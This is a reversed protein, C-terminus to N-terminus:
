ITKGNTTVAAAIPNNNRNVRDTGLAGKIKQILPDPNNQNDKLLGQLIADDDGPYQQQAQTIKSALFTGLSSKPAAQSVPTPTQGVQGVSTINGQPNLPAVALPTAFAGSQNLNAIDPLTPM